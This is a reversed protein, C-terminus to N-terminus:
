SVTRRETMGALKEYAALTEAIVRQSSFETEARERGRVGMSRRLEPNNLLGEIATALAAGDGIPVLLGNDKDRVADRCGPADTTVCVRGCAMAELLVKPLGERYSPLCVIHAFRLVSAMDDRAGWWEVCGENLWAQIEVETVSAPNNADPAGVLVFRARSRLLRAAQIFEGVGKDWLIRAPLMVVPTGEPEDQPLFLSVDVGAGPVLQICRPDVGLGGVEEGDDPNQVIVLGKALAIRLLRGLTFALWGKKGRAFAYGMGAIASVVRNVGSLRAALGGVVVPRLAVHHVLDPRLKRYLRAVAWVERLLGFPNLGRRAMEFPIVSIGAARIEEAKDGCRTAVTVSYGAAQAAIALPLRHSVFYWDETVLYVLRM